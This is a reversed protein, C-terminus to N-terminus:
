KKIKKLDHEWIRVVSYGQKKLERNVKHDRAKNRHFKEGWFGVNSKPMRHHKPCCHWFCGDIFVAIKKKKSGFDPKGFIAPHKRLRMGNFTKPLVEISSKSKIRSMIESRKEKTVTDM